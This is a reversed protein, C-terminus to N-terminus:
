KARESSVIGLFLLACFPHPRHQYWYWYWATSTFFFNRSVFFTIIESEGTWPMSRRFCSFFTSSLKIGWPVQLSCASFISSSSTCIATPFFELFSFALMSHVAAFKGLAVMTRTWTWQGELHIGKLLIKIINWAFGKYDKGQLENM